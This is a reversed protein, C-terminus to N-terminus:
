EARLAEIPSVRTARFAPVLCAVVAVAILLLTIAALTVPDYSSTQFLMAGLLRSAAITGIVGLLLGIGIMKGAETLVLRLVDGQQAGLAMRIGLESTRQVVNYAM